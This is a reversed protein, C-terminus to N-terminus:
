RGCQYLETRKQIQWRYKERFPQVFNQATAPYLKGHLYYIRLERSNCKPCRSLRCDRGRRKYASHDQRMFATQATYEGHPHGIENSTETSQVRAIDVLKDLEQLKQKLYLEQRGKAEHIAAIYAVAESDWKQNKLGVYDFNRM